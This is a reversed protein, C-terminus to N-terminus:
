DLRDALWNRLLFHAISGPRAPLLDPNGGAFSTMAEERTIWIADELEHPDLTIEDTLAEGQTGIMLSAPFPWPQSALYSVEGVQINTEELVERRTAAEITEGPEMFGALLSYMGEPWGPSRGLLVRNGHTILMIVVPDTRPFHFRGCAPCDRQWGAQAMDSKEGCAACFQHSRHWELIARATAAIEAEKPSLATLMMRIEMFGTGVDAHPHPHTKTDLFTNELNSNAGEWDPVNCAFIAQGDSLGLFVPPDNRKAIIPHTEGVMALVYGGQDDSKVLPKGRWIPLIQATKYLSTLRADNSRVHAARDLLGAGLSVTESTKM